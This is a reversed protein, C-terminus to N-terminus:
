CGTGICIDGTPIIKIPGNSVINGSLKINGGVTLTEDPTINNGIGVKFITNDVTITPGLPSLVDQLGFPVSTPGDIPINGATRTEVTLNTSINGVVAPNRVKQIFLFLKHGPGMSTPTNLTFTVTKATDDFATTGIILVDDLTVQSVKTSATLTTGAPFTVIVKGVTDLTAPEVVIAYQTGKFGITSAPNASIGTFIGSAGAYAANQTILILGASAAVISLSLIIITTKNLKM